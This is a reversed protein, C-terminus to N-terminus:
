ADTLGNGNKKGLLTRMDLHQVELLFGCLGRHILDLGGAAACAAGAAVHAAVGFHFGQKVVHGFGVALDVDQHVVGADGVDARGQGCGLFVHVAQVAHVDFADVGAGLGGEGM